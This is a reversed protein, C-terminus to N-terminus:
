LVEPGRRAGHSCQLAQDDASLARIGSRVPRIFPPYGQNSVAIPSTAHFGWQSPQPEPTAAVALFSGVSVLSILAMKSERLCIAAFAFDPDLVPLTLFSLTLPIDFTTLLYHAGGLLFSPDSRELLSRNLNNIISDIHIPSESKAKRPWRPMSNQQTLRLLLYSM